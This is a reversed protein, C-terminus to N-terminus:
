AREGGMQYDFSKGSLLSGEGFNQSFCRVGYVYRGFQKIWADVERFLRVFDYGYRWLIKGITILSWKSEILVFEDGNYFGSTTSVKNRKSLGTPLLKFRYTLCWWNRPHIWAPPQVGLPGMSDMIQCESTFNFFAVRLGKGGGGMM